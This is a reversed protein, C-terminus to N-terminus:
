YAATAKQQARRHRQGLSQAKGGRRGAKPEEMTVDLEGLVVPGGGIGSAGRVEPVEAAEDADDAAMAAAADDEAQASGSQKGKGKGKGKRKNRAQEESEKARREIMSQLTETFKPTKLKFSRDSFSFRTDPNVDDEVLQM